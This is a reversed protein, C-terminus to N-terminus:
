NARCLMEVGSLDNVCCKYVSFGNKKHVKSSPRELNRARAIGCLFANSHNTHDFLKYGGNQTGTIKGQIRVFAYYEPSRTTDCSRCSLECDYHPKCYSVSTGKTCVAVCTDGRLIVHTHHQGYKRQNMQIQNRRLVEELIVTGLCETFLQQDHVDNTPITRSRLAIGMLVKATDLHGPEFRFVIAKNRCEEVKVCKTTTDRSEKKRRGGKKVLISKTTM